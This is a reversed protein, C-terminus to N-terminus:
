SPVEAEATLAHSLAGSPETPDTPPAELLPEDLFEGPEAGIPGLDANSLYMSM